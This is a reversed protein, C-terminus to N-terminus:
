AKEHPYQRQYIYYGIGLLWIIPIIFELFSLDFILSSESHHLLAHAFKNLTKFQIIGFICIFILLHRRIVIRFTSRLMNPISEDDIIPPKKLTYYFELILIIFIAILTGILKYSHDSKSLSSSFIIAKSKIDEEITVLWILFIGICAELSMALIKYKTIFQEHNKTFIFLVQSIITACIMFVSLHGLNEAFLQLLEHHPFYHYMILDLFLSIISILLAIQFFFSLQQSTFIKKLM